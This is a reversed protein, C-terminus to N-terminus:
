NHERINPPLAVRVSQFVKGCVGKCESRISFRKGNEEIEIQKLAKLDQKIDAWEFRHKNTVLRKDLEKRLVLALFSCFVYGAINADKQHYVPRTELLSKVDRFVREVRWLEKYKLAVQDDPLKTNTILVWKGDFRAEAKVKSPDIWASDKAMELYKRYGKNGVLAKPGKKLQQKLSELIAQRDAADKRAQRQNLCVIYRSGDHIVEKVKM